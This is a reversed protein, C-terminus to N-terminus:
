ELTRAAHEAVYRELEKVPVLVIRGGPRVVKLQPMVYQEFARLSLDLAAAAEPKRLAVKPRAAEALVAVFRELLEPSMDSV